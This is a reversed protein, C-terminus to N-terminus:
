ANPAEHAAMCISPLQLPFVAFAPGSGTVSVSMGLTIAILVISSHGLTGRQRTLALVSLLRSRGLM